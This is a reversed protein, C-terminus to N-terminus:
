FSVIKWFQILLFYFILFAGIMLFFLSLFSFSLNVQISVTLKQQFFSIGFTPRQTVQENASVSNDLNSVVKSDDGQEEKKLLENPLDM